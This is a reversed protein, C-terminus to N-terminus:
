KRVLMYISVAASTGGSHSPQIFLPRDLISFIDAATATADAAGGIQTLGIMEGAINGGDISVTGGGFTGSVHVSIESVAEKLQYQQFTDAETVGAWTILADGYETTQIEYSIEAM